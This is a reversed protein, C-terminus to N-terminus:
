QALIFLSTLFHSSSVTALLAESSGDVDLLDLEDLIYWLCNFTLAGGFGFAPPLMGCFIASLTLVLVQTQSWDDIM